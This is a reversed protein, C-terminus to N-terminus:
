TEPNSVRWKLLIRKLLMKCMARCDSHTLTQGGIFVLVSLMTCMVGVSFFVGYNDISVNAFMWNFLAQTLIFLVANLLYVRYTRWASRELIIKNVYMIIVNSSYLLAVVTGLLVGYIGLFYVGIFSVALNIVVEKKAFGVTNRFHGAYNVTELMPTRSKDLLAIMVFLLALVPDAYNIDSVGKTYLRMFPVFLFLAVSFLAYLLASNYCEVLNILYIYRKKNTQYTQGLYFRISNILLNLISELQTVVLKYMSYVSVVKLGCIVTLIMVDTNQFILTGIQHTLVANRQSLVDYDPTVDLCLKRYRRMYWLIFGAQMCQILFSAGLIFVINVQMSVLLVKTVGTLVTIITSLNMLIYNKGEAMLFFNYKGQLYFVVVNGIGSFFVAGSVTLYPLTSGAILPYCISLTILGLLYWRGVKRYYQSSAALVSNIGDWNSEAVPKYLAQLTASGIGAEFLGLCVLFQNLSNLLGNVESGYSVTWLRPLVIGFVILVIQNLSAYVLNNISKKRNDMKRGRNRKDM